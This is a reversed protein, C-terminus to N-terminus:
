LLDDWNVGVAYDTAGNGDRDLELITGVNNIVVDLASNDDARIHLRGSKLAASIDAVITQM